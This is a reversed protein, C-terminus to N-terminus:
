TDELANNADELAGSPFSEWGDCREAVNILQALAFELKEIRLLKAKISKDM